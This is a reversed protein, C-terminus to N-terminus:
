SCDNECAELFHACFANKLCKLPNECRHKLTRWGGQYRELVFFM